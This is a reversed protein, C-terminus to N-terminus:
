RVAKRQDIRREGAVGLLDARDLRVDRVVDGPALDDGLCAGVDGLDLRRKGLETFPNIAEFSMLVPAVM